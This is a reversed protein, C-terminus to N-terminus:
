SGVQITTVRTKTGSIRNLFKIVLLDLFEMVTLVSMGLFLGLYGGINGILSWSDFSPKQEIKDYSLEEFYVDLTAVNERFFRKREQETMNQIDSFADAVDKSETLHTPLSRALANSIASAYSLKTEYKTYDCPVPCYKKFCEAAERPFKGYYTPYICEFTDNLACLPVGKTIPYIPQCGCKKIGYDHLCQKGCTSMSYNVSFYRNFDTINEGCKTNYPTPLNKYKKLKTSCFTHTGPQLAFGTQEMIPYEKRDHVLVKFGAPLWYFNSVHDEQQVNLRLRLGNNPGLSEVKLANGEKKGSNFTHCLGFNLDVFSSFNKKDCDEGSFQCPKLWKMSLIGDISHSFDNLSKNVFNGREGYFPDNEFFDNILKSKTNENLPASMFFTFTEVEKELQETKADSGYRKQGKVFNEKSLINLNCITVAPFDLEEDWETTMATVTPWEYYFTISKYLQYGFGCFAALVVLLWIVRRIFSNETLYRVGHLSTNGFFDKWSIDSM